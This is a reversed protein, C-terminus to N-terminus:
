RPPAGSPVQKELGPRRACRARRAGARARARGRGCGRSERRRPGGSRDAVRQARSGDDRGAADAPCEEDREEDVVMCDAGEGDELPTRSRVPLPLLPQQEGERALERDRNLIRSQVLPRLLQRRDEFSRELRFAPSSPLKPAEVGDRLRERLAEGEVRGQVTDRARHDLQEVGVHGDDAHRVGARFRQSSSGNMNGVRARLVDDGAKDGEWLWERSRERTPEHARLTRHLEPRARGCGLVRM